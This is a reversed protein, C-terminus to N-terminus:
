RRDPNPDCPVEVYLTTGSGPASEVTLKGGLAQARERMGFLGLRNRQAVLTPDFGIGNDEVIALIRSPVAPEAAEEEELPRAMEEDAGDPGCAPGRRELVVAVNTAGAHRAVNTLSEQVIRYLAIEVEPALRVHDMGMVEMQARIGYQRSFQDVYQRLAPVLGLKDLSVPRLNVALDHLGELVQGALQKVETMSQGVVPSCNLDRELLTLKVMLATLGQAAEDHLERAVYLRENEQVDVLRRSLNQLQERSSCVEEYLRANQIAM